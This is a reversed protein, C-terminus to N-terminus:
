CFKRHSSCSGFSTPRPLRHPPFSLRHTSLQHLIPATTLSQLQCQHTLLPHLQHTLLPQFRTSAPNTHPAPFLLAPTPRPASTPYQLKDQHQLPAPLPRAILTSNTNIKADPRVQEQHQSISKHQHQISPSSNTNSSYQPRSNTHKYQSPRQPHNPYLLQPEIKSTHKPSPQGPTPRLTPAPTLTNLPNNIDPSLRVVV